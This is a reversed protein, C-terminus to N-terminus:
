TGSPFQQFEQLGGEGHTLHLYEKEVSPEEFLLTIIPKVVFVFVVAMILTLSFSNQPLYYFNLM